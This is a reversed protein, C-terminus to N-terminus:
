YTKESLNFYNLYEDRVDLLLNLHFLGSATSDIIISFSKKDKVYSDIKFCMSTIYALDEAKKISLTNNKYAKYLNIGEVLLEKLAIKSDCLLNNKNVKGLCQFALLLIVKNEELLNEKFLNKLLQKHEKLINFFKNKKLLPSHTGRNPVIIFRLLKVDIISLPTKNYIRGRFDQICPMYSIFINSNKFCKNFFEEVSFQQLINNTQSPLNYISLFYIKLSNYLDKSFIVATISMLQCTYFDLNCNNNQINKVQLNYYKNHKSFFLRNNKTTPEYDYILQSYDKVIKIYKNFIVFKQVYKTYTKVKTMVELDLNITSVLINKNEETYNDLISNASLLSSVDIKNNVSITSKSYDLCSFGFGFYVIDTYTSFAIKQFIQTFIDLYTMFNEEINLNYKCHDKILIFYKTELDELIIKLYKKVYFRNHFNNDLEFSNFFKDLLDANLGM